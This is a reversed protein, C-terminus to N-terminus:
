SRLARASPRAPPQNAFTRFSDGRVEGRREREGLINHAIWFSLAATRGHSLTKMRNPLSEAHGAPRVPGASQNKSTSNGARENRSSSVPKTNRHPYTKFYFKNNLMLYHYPTFRFQTQSFEQGSLSSSAQTPRSRRSIDGPRMDRDNPLFAIGICNM